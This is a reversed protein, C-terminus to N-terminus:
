GGQGTAEYQAVARKLEELAAGYAQFDGSTQAQQLKQLAQDLARVASDRAASNPQQGQPTQPQPTPQPQGNDTDTDTPGSPVGLAGPNIGVQRLAEATTNAYGISAQGGAPEYRTIVRFLRPFAEAAQAQAYMPVVYLIGNDGVPLTLLNGFTM